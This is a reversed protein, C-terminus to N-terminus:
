NTITFGQITINHSAWNFQFGRHPDAESGECDIICNSSGNQSIVVITKDFSIDRNGEGTYIGDAVLVTDGDVAGNIGAQITISDGPVHIISGWSTIPTMLTVAIMFAINTWHM